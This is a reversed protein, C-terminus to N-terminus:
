EVIEATGDAADDVAGEETGAGDTTGDASGDETAEGNGDDTNVPQLAEEFRAAQEDYAAAAENAKSVASEVDTTCSLTEPAAVEEQYLESLRDLDYTTDFSSFVEAIKAKDQFAKSYSTNMTAVAERCNNMAALERVKQSGRFGMLGFTIGCVVAIALVVAVIRRMFLKVQANVRDEGEQAGQIIASDFSDSPDAAFDNRPEFDNRGSSFTRPSDSNGRSKRGHRAM